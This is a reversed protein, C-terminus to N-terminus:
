NTVGVAGRIHAQTKRMSSTANVYHSKPRAPSCIIILAHSVDLAALTQDSLSHGATFEDRDRFIPRLL